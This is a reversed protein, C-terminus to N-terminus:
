SWFSEKNPPVSGDGLGAAALRATGLLLFTIAAKKRNMVM